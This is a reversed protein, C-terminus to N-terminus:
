IRDNRIIYGTNEQHESQRGKNQLLRGIIVKIDNKSNKKIPQYNEKNFKTEEHTSHNNNNRFKHVHSEKMRLTTCPYMYQQSNKLCNLQNQSFAPVKFSNLSTNNTIQQTSTSQQYSVETQGLIKSLNSMQQKVGEQSMSRQYNLEKHKQLQHKISRNYDFQIQRNSINPNIQKIIKPKYTDDKLNSKSDLQFSEQNQQFISQEQLYSNLNYNNSTPISLTSSSKQKKDKMLNFQDMSIPIGDNLNSSKDFSQNNVQSQQQIQQKQALIISQTSSNKLYNNYIQVKSEPCAIHFSKCQVPSDYSQVSSKIKVADISRKKSTSEHCCMSEQLNGDRNLRKLEEIQKLLIQKEYQFQAQIETNNNNIQKIQDEYQKKLNIIDINQEIHQQYKAITNQCKSIRLQLQEKEKEHLTSLQVFKSEYDQQKSKHDQMSLEKVKQLEQENLLKQQQEKQKYVDEQKALQERLRQNEQNNTLKEQELQSIRHDYLLYQKQYQLELEKAQSEKELLQEQLSRVQLEFQKIQEKFKTKSHDKQQIDISKQLEAISKKQNATSDNIAQTITDNLKRQNTERLKYDELQLELLQTKQELVAKDKKWENEKTIFYKRLKGIDNEEFFNFSSNLM